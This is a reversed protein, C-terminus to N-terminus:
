TVMKKEIENKIAELLVNTPIAVNSTRYGNNQAFKRGYQEIWYDKNKIWAFQLLHFPFFYARLEPLIAYVVYDPIKQRGLWGVKKKDFDTYEELLIDGYYKRRKKEDVTLRKGSEFILIKDVGALQNELDIVTEIQKLFPFVRMYLADLSKSENEIMSYQLDVKFDNM